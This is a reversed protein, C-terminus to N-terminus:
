NSKPKAHGQKSCCHLTSSCMSGASSNDEPRIGSATVQLPPLAARLQVPCQVPEHSSGSVKPSKGLKFSERIRPSNPSRYNAGKREGCSHLAPCLRRNLWYKELHREQAPCPPAPCCCFLFGSIDNSFFISIELSKTGSKVDERPFEWPDWWIYFQSPNPSFVSGPIEALVEWGRRQARGPAAGRVCEPCPPTNSNLAIDSCEQEGHLIWSIKPSLFLTSQGWYSWVGHFWAALSTNAKSTAWLRSQVWPVFGFNFHVLPMTNEGPFAGLSDLWCM